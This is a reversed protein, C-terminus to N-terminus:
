GWRYNWAKEPSKDSPIGIGPSMDGPFFQLPFSALSVKEPSKRSRSERAVQHPGCLEAL